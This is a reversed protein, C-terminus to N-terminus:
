ERNEEKITVESFDDWTLVIQQNYYQERVKGVAEDDTEAEVEIYRSLTEEVLINFIKNM